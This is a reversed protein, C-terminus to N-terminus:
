GSLRTLRELAAAASVREDEPSPQPDTVIAFPQMPKEQEAEVMEQFTPPEPAPAPDTLDSLCAVGTGSVSLLLTKGRAQVVYLTGGAFAASEEIKITSGVGTVLQKNLKGAIRPLVFKLLGVVIALAIIMQLMPMFGISSSGGGPAGIPDSKTGVLGAHAVSAVGFACLVLIRKL